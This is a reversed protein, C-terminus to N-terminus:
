ASTALSEDVSAPSSPIIACLFQPIRLVSTSRASCTGESLRRAHHRRLGIADAEDCLNLLTMREGLDKECTMRVRELGNLITTHDSRHVLRGIKPLSFGCVHRLLWMAQFRVSSISRIRKDSIIVTRPTMTREEVLQFVDDPTPISGAPKMRRVLGTWPDPLLGADQLFILLTRRSIRVHDARESRLASNRIVEVQNLPHVDCIGEAHLRFLLNAIGFDLADQAMAALATEEVGTMMAQILVEADDLIEGATRTEVRGVQGVHLGSGYPGHIIDGTGPLIM